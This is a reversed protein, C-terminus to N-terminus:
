FDKIKAILMAHDPWGVFNEKYAPDKKFSWDYEISEVKVSNNVFLHDLRCNNWSSLQKPTHCTYGNASLEAVLRPYSYNQRPRNPYSESNDGDQFFGNNFDGALVVNGQLEDIENIIAHLQISRNIYDEELNGGGVKIRAAIFSIDLNKIKSTVRLFNPQSDDRGMVFINPENVYNKKLAILVENMAKDPAPGLFVAYGLGRLEKLFEGSDNERVFETLYVADANIQAIHEVVFHPIGDKKQVSRQNLNWELLKM